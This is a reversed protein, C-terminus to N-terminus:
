MAKCVAQKDTKCAAAEKLTGEALEYVRVGEGRGTLYLLPLAPDWFPQLVGVGGEAVTLTEVPENFSTTNWLLVTRVGQKEFGTTTILPDPTLWTTRIPKSSLHPM